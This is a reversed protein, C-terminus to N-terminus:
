KLDYLVTQIIEKDNFNTVLEYKRNRKIINKVLMLGYGHGKGKTSFKRKGM